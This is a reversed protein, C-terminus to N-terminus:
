DERRYEGFSCVLEDFTGPPPEPLFMVAPLVQDKSHRILECSVAGHERCLYRAYSHALLLTWPSPRFVPRDKPVLHEPVERLKLTDEGKVPEWITYTQMQQGPAPIVEGRPAQVPIDDGLGGALLSQRHRVWPNGTPDPFQLTTVNGKDDKLRAEFFVESVSLRNSLFHYNATMRLPQLYWPTLVNNIKGAFMPGEAPSDGFRTAWPGSQAALVLMLVAFLHLVIALSGVWILAPPLPRPAIARQQSM